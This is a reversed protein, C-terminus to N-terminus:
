RRAALASMTLGTGAFLAFGVASALAAFPLVALVAGTGVWYWTPHGAWAVRM